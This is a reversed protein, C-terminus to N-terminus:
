AQMPTRQDRGTIARIVAAWADGSREQWHTLPVASTGARGDAIAHAMADLDNTPVLGDSSVVDAIGGEDFALVSCGMTLALIISGSQTAAVYPAVVVPRQALIRLLADQPVPVPSTLDRTAVGLARIREWGGPPLAGRGCVVLGLRAREKAPVRELIDPLLDSGKDWRLAGVFAIWRRDGSLATSEATSAVAPEHRTPDSASTAHTPLITTHTYPPHPCVTAREHATPDLLSRLRESHVVLAGANRLLLRWARRTLASEAERPVPNHVVVVVPRGAAALAALVLNEVPFRSFAVVVVARKAVAHWSTTAIGRLLAALQRPVSAAGYNAPLVRHWVVGHPPRHHANAADVMTVAAGRRALLAAIEAGYANVGDSNHVVIPAPSM